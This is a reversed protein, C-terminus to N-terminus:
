IDTLMIYSTILMNIRTLTAGNQIRINVSMRIAVFVDQRDATTFETKMQELTNHHITVPLGTQNIIKRMNETATLKVYQEVIRIGKSLDKITAKPCLPYPTLM